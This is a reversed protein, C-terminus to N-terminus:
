LRSEKNQYEATIQEKKAEKKRKRNFCSFYDEILSVLKM